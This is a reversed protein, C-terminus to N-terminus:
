KYANKIYEPVDILEFKYDPDRRLIVKLVNEAFKVSGTFKGYEAVFETYATAIPSMNNFDQIIKTATAPGVGRRVNPINDTTDGHLLQMGISHEAEQETILTEVKTKTNYNWGPVQKMDKDPSCVIVTTDRDNSLLWHTSAVADDAEYGKQTFVFKWTNTLYDIIMPKRRVLWEPAEPRNSKYDEFMRRRMDDPGQLFGIYKDAKTNILIETIYNDIGRFLEEDDNDRHLWSGVWPINDGDVLSVRM